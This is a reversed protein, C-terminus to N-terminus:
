AYKVANTSCIIYRQLTKKEIETLDKNNNLLQQIREIEETTRKKVIEINANYAMAVRQINATQNDNFKKAILFKLKKVEESEIIDSINSFLHLLKCKFAMERNYLIIMNNFKFKVARVLKGSDSDM